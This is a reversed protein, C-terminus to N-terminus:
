RRLICMTHWGAMWRGQGLISKLAPTPCLFSNLGLQGVQPSTPILARRPSPPALQSPITFKKTSPGTTKQPRLILLVCFPRLITSLSSPNASGPRSALAMNLVSKQYYLNIQDALGSRYFPQLALGTGLAPNLDQGLAKLTWGDSTFNGIKVFGNEDQFAIIITNACLECWNYMASLSSNAM